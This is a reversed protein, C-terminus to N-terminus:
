TQPKDIAWADGRWICTVLHVFQSFITLTLTGITLDNNNDIASNFTVAISAANAYTGAKGGDTGQVLYLIQGKTTGDPVVYTRMVEGRSDGELIAVGKTVDITTTSGDSESVDLGLNTGGATSGDSVKLTKADTDLILEGTDGVHVTASEAIHKFKFKRTAM